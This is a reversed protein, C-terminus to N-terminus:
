TTIDQGRRGRLIRLIKHDKRFQAITRRKTALGKMKMHGFNMNVRRLCVLTKGGGKPKEEKGQDLDGEM